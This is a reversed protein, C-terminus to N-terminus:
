EEEEQEEADSWEEYKDLISAVRDDNGEEMLEYLVESLARMNVRVEEGSFYNRISLVEDQFEYTKSSMVTNALKNVEVRLMANM